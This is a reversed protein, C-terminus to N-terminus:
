SGRLVPFYNFLNVGSVPYFPTGAPPTFFVGGAYGGNRVSRYQYLSLIYGQRFSRVGAFAPNNVAPPTPQLRRGQRLVRRNFADVGQKSYPDTIRSARATARASVLNQFKARNSAADARSSGALIMAAAAAALLSRQIVKSM